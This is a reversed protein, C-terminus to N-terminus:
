EGFIEELKQDLEKEPLNKALIVGEKDLLFTTPLFPIAYLTAVDAPMRPRSFEDVVHLWKTQDEEIAKKWAEHDSDNSIALVEFGKDKYKSYVKKLHPYSERCPKCWSAWFDLLVYKGKTESLSLEKGEPTKLTFEPAVGGPSTRKIMQYENDFYQYYKTHKADETMMALVEEMEELNFNRESFQYGLVAPAAATAGHQQVFDMKLAMLEEVRTNSLDQHADMEEKIKKALEIDRSRQAEGYAKSLENLKKFREDNVLAEEKDLQEQYLDQLASGTIEAKLAQFRERKQHIDTTVSIRSNELFFPLSTSDNIRLTVMDPHEIKGKMEFTEDSIVASDITESTRDIPNYVILTVPGDTAGTIAGNLIYGDHNDKKSCCSITLVLIFFKFLKM